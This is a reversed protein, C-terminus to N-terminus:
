PTGNQKYKLFSRMASSNKAKILSINGKLKDKLEKIEEEAKHLNEENENAKGEWGQMLRLATNLESQAQKCDREAMKLETNLQAVQAQPDAVGASFDFTCTHNQIQNQLTIATQKVKDLEEDKKIM